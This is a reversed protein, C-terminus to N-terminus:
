IGYRQLWGTFAFAAVIETVAVCVLVLYLRTIRMM